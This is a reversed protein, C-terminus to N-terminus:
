VKVVTFSASLLDFAKGFLPLQVAFLANLPFALEIAMYAVMCAARCYSRFITISVGPFINEYREYM